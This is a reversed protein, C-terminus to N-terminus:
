RNCTTRTGEGDVLEMNKASVVVTSRGVEKPVSEGFATLDSAPLIEGEFTGSIATASLIQEEILGDEVLKWSSKTVVQLAITGDDFEADLTVDSDMTGDANYTIQGSVVSDLTIAACTWKGVILSAQTQPAAVGTALTVVFAASAAIRVLKVGL